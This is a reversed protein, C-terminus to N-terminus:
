PMKKPRGRKVPNTLREALDAKSVLRVGGGPASRRLKGHVKLVGRDVWSQLTRVNCGHVTAASQLDILGEPLEDYIVEAAPAPEANNVQPANYVDTVMSILDAKEMGADRAEAM